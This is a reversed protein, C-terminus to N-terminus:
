QLDRMCAIHEDAGSDLALQAILVQCAREAIQRHHFGPGLEIDIIGVLTERETSQRAGRGGRRADRPCARGATLLRLRLKSLTPAAARFDCGWLVPAHRLGRFICRIHWIADPRRGREM